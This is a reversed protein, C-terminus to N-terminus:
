RHRSPQPASADPLSSAKRRPAPSSPRALPHESMRDLGAAQSLIQPKGGAITVTKDLVLTDIGFRV